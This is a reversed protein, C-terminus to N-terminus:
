APRALRRVSWPMGLLQRRPDGHQGRRVGQEADHLGCVPEVEVRDLDGADVEGQALPQPKGGEDVPDERQRAVVAPLRHGPGGHAVVEVAHM